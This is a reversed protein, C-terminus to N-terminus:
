PPPSSDLRALCLSGDASRREIRYVGHITKRTGDPGFLSTRALFLKPPPHAAPSAQPVWSAAHEDAYPIHVLRRGVLGQVLLAPLEVDVALTGESIEAGPLTRVFAEIQAARSAAYPAFGRVFQGNLVLLPLAALWAAVRVRKWTTATASFAKAGRWAWGLCPALLPLAPRGGLDYVWLICQLAYVGAVVASARGAPTRDEVAGRVVLAMFGVGLVLGLTQLWEGRAAGAGTAGVMRLTTASLADVFPVGILVEVIHRWVLGAYGGLGGLARLKDQFSVSYNVSSFGPETRGLWAWLIMAAAVPAAFAALARLRRNGGFLMAALAVGAIIGLAATRWLYMAAALAGLALWRRPEGAAVAARLQSWLLFAFACFVPESYLFHVYSNWMPSLGLTAVVLAQALPGVGLLGLHRTLLWTALLAAACQAVAMAPYNGPFAGGGLRWGAALFASQGPPYLRIRPEGVHVVHRYGRGETLSRAGELYYSTDKGAPTVRPLCALQFVIVALWVAGLVVRPWRPERPSSDAPM